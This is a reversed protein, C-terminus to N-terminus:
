SQYYDRLANINRDVVTSKRSGSVNMIIGSLTSIETGETKKRLGYVKMVIEWLM